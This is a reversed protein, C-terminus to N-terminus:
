KKGFKYHKYDKKGEKIMSLTKFFNGNYYLCTKIHSMTHNVMEQVSALNLERYKNQIYLMNRQLYYCRLPCHVSKEKKILFLNKISANRVIKGLSHKMFLNTFQIVRYGALNVAICYDWDVGDIFLNEDFGKTNKYVELNLLSGSTIVHNVEIYQHFHKKNIVAISSSTNSLGVVGIQNNNELDSLSFVYNSIVEKDFFSDQDMTLLWKYKDLLAKNGAENLRISMGKNQGDWFYYVNSFNLQEIDFSSSTETNDYIYLADVYKIYTNINRLVEEKNPNYLIVAAAIKM